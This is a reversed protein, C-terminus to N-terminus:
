PVFFLTTEREVELGKGPIMKGVAEYGVAVIAGLVFAEVM